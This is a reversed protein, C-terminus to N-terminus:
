DQAAAADASAASAQARVAAVQQPVAPALALKAQADAVTTEALRLEAEADTQAKEAADLAAKASAAETDASKATLKAAALATSASGLVARAAAVDQLTAQQRKVLRALRDVESQAKQAQTDADALKKRGEAAAQEAADSRTKAAGALDRTEALSRFLM